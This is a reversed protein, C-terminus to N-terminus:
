GSMLWAIIRETGGYLVPPIPVQGPKYFTIHM